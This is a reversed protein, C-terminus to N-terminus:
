KGYARMDITRKTAHISDDIIRGVIDVPGLGAKTCAAVFGSDPSICPNANVELLWPERNEDVRFDCRAYGRLAFSSWCRLSIERMEQVPAPDDTEFDFTRRTNVFEFTDAQWKADYGVIKPKDAPFDSFVIEQVPLTLPGKTEGLLAINFERGDVFREVFMQESRFAETLGTRSDDFVVSRDDLMRSAHETQTKVIYPPPFPPPDITGASRATPVHWPPTPIGCLTFVNKATIKNSTIMISEASCGTYPIGIADLLMPVAALLSDMGHISEVLNFVFLPRIQGLTEVTKGLDLTVPVRIPVYELEALAGEVFAIENLIDLEDHGADNGIDDYLVAVNKMQM